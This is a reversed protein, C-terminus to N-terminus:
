KFLTKQTTVSKFVTLESLLEASSFVSSVALNFIQTFAKDM